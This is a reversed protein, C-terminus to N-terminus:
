LLDLACLFHSPPKVFDCHSKLATGSINARAEAAHSTAAFSIM